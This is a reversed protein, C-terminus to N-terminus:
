FSALEFTILKNGQLDYVQLTPPTKDEEEVIYSVSNNSAALQTDSLRRYNFMTTTTKKSLVESSESHTDCSNEIVIANDTDIRMGEIWRSDWLVFAEAQADYEYHEEYIIADVEDKDTFENHSNEIALRFRLEGDGVTQPAIEYRIYNYTRNLTTQITTETQQLACTTRYIYMVYEEESEEEVDTKNQSVNQAEVFFGYDKLTKVFQRQRDIEDVIPSNAALSVWKTHYWKDKPASPDEKISNDIYTTGDKTVITMNGDKDKTVTNGNNDTMVVSGDQLTQTDIITGLGEVLDGLQQIIESNPLNNGKKEPENKQCALLATCCLALAVLKTKM